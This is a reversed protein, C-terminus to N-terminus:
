SKIEEYKRLFMRPNVISGRMVKELILLDNDGTVIYNAKGSIACDIFKNDKSDRCIHFSKIITVWKVKSPIVLSWENYLDPRDLKEAIRFISSLYENLIDESALVEIKQTHWLDIVKLPVGGWFIGSALVNTDLIVKM